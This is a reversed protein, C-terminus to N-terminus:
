FCPKLWFDGYAWIITGSIAAILEIHGLISFLNIKAAWHKEELEAKGTIHKYSNLLNPFTFDYVFPRTILSSFIAAGVIIAGSRAFWGNEKFCNIEAWLSYGAWLFSSLLVIIIVALHIYFKVESKM